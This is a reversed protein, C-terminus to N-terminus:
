SKEKLQDLSGIKNDLDKWLQNAFIDGVDGFSWLSFRRQAAEFEKLKIQKLSCFLELDISILLDDLKENLSQM